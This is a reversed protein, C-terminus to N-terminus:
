SQPASSSALLPILQGLLLTDSNPVIGLHATLTGDPKLGYAGIRTKESSSTEFITRQTGVIGLLAKFRPRVPQRSDLDDINSVREVKVIRKRPPKTNHL